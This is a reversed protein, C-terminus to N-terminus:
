RGIQSATRLSNFITSARRTALSYYLSNRQMEILENQLSVPQGSDVEGGSPSCQSGGMKQSLETEFPSSLGTLLDAFSAKKATYGPTHANAINNSAMQQRDSIATLMDVVPLLKSTPDFGM